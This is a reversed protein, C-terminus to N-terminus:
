RGGGGAGPGEPNSAWPGSEQKLVKWLPPSNKLRFGEMWNGARTPRPPRSTKKGEAARKPPKRQAPTPCVSVRLYRERFRVALTGDLRKEIRVRAGRLSPCPSPIPFFLHRTDLTRAPLIAPGSLPVQAVLNTKQKEQCARIEGISKRIARYPFSRVSYGAVSTPVFLGKRPHFM